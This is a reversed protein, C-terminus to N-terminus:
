KIPVLTFRLATITNNFLKLLRLGLIRRALKVLPSPHILCEVSRVKYGGQTTYYQCECDPDWYDFSKESFFRVHTPDRFAGESAWYPVEIILTGSPKLVRHIEGMLSSLDQIHELVHRCYIRDISGDAFPLQAAVFDAVVDPDVVASQDVGITGPVKYRGCGLDVALTGPEPYIIESAQV